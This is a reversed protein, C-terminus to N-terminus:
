DKQLVEEFPFDSAAMVFAVSPLNETRTQWDSYYQAFNQPSEALGLFILDAEQSHERLNVEFSKGQSVIIEPILDLNM